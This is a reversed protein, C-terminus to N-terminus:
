QFMAEAWETAQGLVAAHCGHGVSVADGCDFSCTIQGGASGAHTGKSKTLLFLVGSSSLILSNFLVPKKELVVNKM